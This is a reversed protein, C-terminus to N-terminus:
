GASVTRIVDESGWLLVGNKARTIGTYIIQRVLLRSGTERPFVLLVRGYESGQSKHVTIAFAPEWLGLDLVPWARMGDGSNERFWAARGLVVGVDGNFLRREHDNATIMIPLGHFAGGEGKPKLRGISVGLTELREKLWVQAVRNLSEVGTRGRRVLALLRASDLRALMEGAIREDDAGHQQASSAAMGAYGGAETGGLVLDLWAQIREKWVKGSVGEGPDIRGLPLRVAEALQTMELLPIGNVFSGADGANCARAAEIIETCSRRNQELIVAAMGPNKGDTRQVAPLIDALIAGANVSPLQDRDGILILRADTRVAEILSVMLEIDVMSVEDIVVVDAELPYAACRGFRQRSHHYELLRHITKGELADFFGREETSLGDMQDTQTILSDKMRQAARGTPAALAVRGVACLGATFLARLVAAVTTTKGTGPGGSIVLTRAALAMGVAESQRENLTMGAFATGRALAAKKLSATITVPALQRRELFAQELRREARFLRQWWVRVFSGDQKLVVMPTTGTEEMSGVLTVLAGLGNKKKLWAHIRKAAAAADGPECGARTLLATLRTVELGLCLSGEHGAVLLALVVLLAAGPDQPKGLVVLDRALQADGSDLAEQVATLVRWPLEDSPELYPEFLSRAWEDRDCVQIM